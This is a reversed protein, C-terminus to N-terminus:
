RTAKLDAQLKVNLASIQANITKIEEQSGKGVQSVLVALNANYTNVIDHISQNM